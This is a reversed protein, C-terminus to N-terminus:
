RGRFAAPRREVFAAIGERADATAFLRSLVDQELTLADDLPLADGDAVLRKAARVALPANGAVTRALELARDLLEDAPTVAALLGRRHLEAAPVPQGTVLLQTTFRAGLARTLRQSGGGGPLLGLTIEPLGFKAGDAALLADCCLAIEFGGGLAHGNVAAITFQPLREVATFLARGLRQFSDFAEQPVGHYEGIDAGAVFVRGTGGSLVLVRVSDDAALADLHELLAQMLSRSLANRKDERAIRVVQVGPEPRTVELNPHIRDATMGDGIM